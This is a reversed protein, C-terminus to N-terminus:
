SGQKRLLEAVKPRGAKVEELDVTIKMVRAIFQVFGETAANWPASAITLATDGGANKHNAAAKAELLKRAIELKGLFAASQLPTGGDRHKRNVDAGAKILAEVAPTQGALVAWTIPPIGAGDHADLQEPKQKALRQLADVDGKKAADWMDSIVPKPLSAGSKAGAAKLLKAVLPRGAKAQSTDIPVRLMLSLFQVIAQTQRTWKASATDLPTEGDKNMANVDAKNALLLAAMDAKGLLAVAHLTTNKDRNTANVNAGNAILFKVAATKGAMAALALPPTAAMDPANVSVGKDLHKQLGALDGKRAATWINDSSFAGTLAAPILPPTEPTRNWLPMGDQVESTIDNRRRKVFKRVRDLKESHDKQSGALHPKLLTEVRDIEALLKKEDWVTELLALMAKRYQQRGEETQYLKHTLLGKTKVSIPSGAKYTLLSIKDFAADLGWPIFHFKGTAPNLYMFFNNNNASYGDWAGLLGEVAWFKYFSDLDVLKGIEQTSVEGAGLVKILRAIAARGPKDKGFKKEFSGAWGEYFDVATGEYLTGNSNGFVRQYMPRKMSEVHSYVGLNQGNVTVQAFSCRPAPSGAAHFVGYGLYQNVLSSDQKNNNFTLNTLGAANANKDVYNLKIKLSPRSTSQSGIFGKKRVGANTHKVGNITVTAKVYTYPSEVPATKRKEQLAEFFNRSQKRIKDWDDNDMTIQVSLVKSRDFLQQQTLPETAVPEAAVPAAICLAHVVALMAVAALLPKQRALKQAALKQAALKLVVLKQVVSNQLGLYNM